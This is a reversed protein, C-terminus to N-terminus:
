RAPSGTQVFGRFGETHVRGRHLQPRRALIRDAIEHAATRGVVHLRAGEPIANGMRDFIEDRARYGILYVDEAQRLLDSAQKIMIDPLTPLFGYQKSTLPLMVLPYFYQNHVWRFVGAVGAGEGTPRLVRHQPPIVLVRDLNVAPPGNFMRGMALVIRADYDIQDERERDVPFEPDAPVPAPRRPVIWNVSGHPKILNARGYSGLHMLDEGGVIHQLSMDLLTDYNFSILGFPVGQAVIQAVFNCYLNEPNWTASIELFMRWVYFTLRGFETLAAQKAQPTPLKEIAAWRATLWDEVPTTGISTRLGGIDNATLTVKHAYENVYQPNFLENMLPALRSPPGTELQSGRSAGAGFVYVRM